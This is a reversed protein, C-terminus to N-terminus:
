DIDISKIDIEVNQSLQIEINNCTPCEFAPESVTWEFNCTNCTMIAPVHRINLVAGECLTEKSAVEFCFSLSEPVVSSLTGAEINVSRVVCDLADDPISQKVIDIIQLAIGMEHM